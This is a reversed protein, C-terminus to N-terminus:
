KANLEKQMFYEALLRRNKLQFANPRKGVIQFGFKEYLARARGNGEIFDLELIKIGPNAKAASILETFMASGIGLNWYDRLIAIAVSARHATKLGSQFTLECNGVITNDVYCAIALASNSERLNKIWREEREVSMSEWEEPYRALFDTEGCARTIYALMGKADEVSPTKLVAVSGNKLTIQKEKFIM